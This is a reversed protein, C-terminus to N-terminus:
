KYKKEIEETMAEVLKTQALQLFKKNKQLKEFPMKYNSLKDVIVRIDKIKKDQRYFVTRAYIYDLKGSYDKVLYTSISKPNVNDRSRLQLIIEEDNSLDEMTKTIKAIKKKYNELLKDMKPDQTKNKCNIFKEIMNEVGDAGTIMSFIGRNNKTNDTM